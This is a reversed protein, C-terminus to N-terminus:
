DMLQAEGLLTNKPADTLEDFLQNALQPSRLSRSVKVLPALCDAVAYQVQESPTKLSEVLREFITPLRADSPKLHRAVRGFSIVVAEHIFYAAESTPPPGALHTEFMTILDALHVSGHYDIISSGAGLMGHRVEASRDGLAGEKVLFNFFPVTAEDSFVPAM